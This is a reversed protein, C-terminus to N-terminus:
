LVGTKRRRVGRTESERKAEPQQQQQQQALNHAAHGLVKVQGPVECLFAAEELLVVNLYHHHLWRESKKERREREDTGREKREKYTTELDERQERRVARESALSLFFRLAFRCAEETERKM